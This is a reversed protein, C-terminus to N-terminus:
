KGMQNPSATIHEFGWEIAFSRFEASSFQPRNDSMVQDPVGYRSFMDMLVKSVGSTITKTIREVEMFNSYYDVMVLLTHGQFECLDIGVKSWPRDPFEHQLLPEKCPTHRHALCVDCKSIYDKHETAMRPWYVNDRARRM